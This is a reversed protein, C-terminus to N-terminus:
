VRVVAGIGHRRLLWALAVSKTLCTSGPVCRGAREIATVYDRIDADSLRRKAGHSAAHPQLMRRIGAVRVAIIAAAIALASTTVLRKERRTLALWRAFARM